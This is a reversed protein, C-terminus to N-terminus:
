KIRAVWGGLISFPILVLIIGTALALPYSFAVIMFAAIVTSFIGVGMAAEKKKSLTIRSAMYGGSFMGLAASLIIGVIAKVPLQSLYEEFAFVDADVAMPEYGLIQPAYTQFFIMVIYAVIVGLALALIFRLPSTKM